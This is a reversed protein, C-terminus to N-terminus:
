GSTPNTGAFSNPLRPAGRREPEALLRRREDNIDSLQDPVVVDRLALALVEERTRGLIACLADNVVLFRGDLDNIAMDTLAAQMATRLLQESAATREAEQMRDSVDRWTLSLSDGVRVGRVDM